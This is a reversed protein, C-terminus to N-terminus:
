ALPDRAKEVYMALMTPMVVNVALADAVATAPAMVPVHAAEAPHVNRGTVNGVLMVVHSPELLCITIPM